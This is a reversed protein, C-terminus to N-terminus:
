ETINTMLVLLSFALRRTVFSAVVMAVGEVRVVDPVDFPTFLKV